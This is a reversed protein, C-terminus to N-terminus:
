STLLYNPKSPSMRLYKRSIKHTQNLATAIKTTGAISSQQDRRAKPYISTSASAEKIWPPALGRSSGEEIPSLKRNRETEMEWTQGRKFEKYNVEDLAINVYLQLFFKTHMNAKEGQSPLVLLLLTLFLGEAAKFSLHM